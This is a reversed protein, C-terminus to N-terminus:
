AQAFEIEFSLLLFLFFEEFIYFHRLSRGQPSHTWHGFLSEELLEVAATTPFNLSRRIFHRLVVIHM